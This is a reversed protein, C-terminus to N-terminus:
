RPVGSGSRRRRVILARGGTVLIFAPVAGAIGLWAGRREAADMVGHITVEPGAGALYADRGFLYRYMGDRLTLDFIAHWVAFAVLGPLWFWRWAAGVRALRTGV